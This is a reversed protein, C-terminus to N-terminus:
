VWGAQLSFVPNLWAAAFAPLEVSTWRAGPSIAVFIEPGTQKHTEAGSISAVAMVFLMFVRIM